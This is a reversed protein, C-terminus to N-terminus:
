YHANDDSIDEEDLDELISDIDEQISEAESILSAVSSSLSNLERVITTKKMIMKGKLHNTFQEGITAVRICVV